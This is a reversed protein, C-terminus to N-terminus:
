MTDKYDSSHAWKLLKQRSYVSPEFIPSLVAETTAELCVVLLMRNGFLELM